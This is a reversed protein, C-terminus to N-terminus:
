NDFKKISLDYSGLARLFIRSMNERTLQTEQFGHNKIIETSILGYLDDFMDLMPHLMKEADYDAENRFISKVIEQKQKELAEHNPTQIVQELKEYQIDDFEKTLVDNLLEKIKQRQDSLSPLDKEMSAKEIALVDLNYFGSQIITDYINETSVEKLPYQLRFPIAQEGNINICYFLSGESQDEVYFLKRKNKDDITFNLDFENVEALWPEAVKVQNESVVFYKESELVTPGFMFTNRLDIYIDFSGKDIDSEVIDYVKLCVQQVTKHNLLKERNSSDMEEFTRIRKIEWINLNRLLPNNSHQFYKVWHNSIVSQNGHKEILQLIYKELISYDVLVPQDKHPFVPSEVFCLTYHNFDQNDRQIIPSNDM